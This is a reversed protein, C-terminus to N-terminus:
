SGFAAVRELAVIDSNPKRGVDVPKGQIVAALLAARRVATRRDGATADYALRRRELLRRWRAGDSSRGHFARGIRPLCELVPERRRLMGAEAPRARARTGGRRRARRGVEAGLPRAAAAAGRSARGSGRARRRGRLAPRSCGAHASRIRRAREVVGLEVRKGGVHAIEDFALLRGFADPRQIGRAAAGAAGFAQAPQQERDDAVQADHEDQERALEHAHARGGFEGSSSRRASACSVASMWAGSAFRSPM